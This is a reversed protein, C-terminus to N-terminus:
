AAASSAEGLGQIRPHVQAGFTEIGELAAEHSLKGIQGLMLLHGFGGVKEYFREIQNVVQNATGAFVIGKDILEDLDNSAPRPGVRGTRVAQVNAELSAYGPPNRFQIPVKNAHLYWLLEQAGARAASETKATYVMACYALRDDPTDLGERSRRARYADFVQRAAEHGVLFTAAVYGYRAIRDANPPTTTTVWVPPHPQQYPRPWVNVQRYRFHRGEWTFPEDTPEWSRMILDHAEWLRETTDAPTINAPAAEYPVGRVFGVELRGRSMNDILAMEEAVRVPERRNAIPNGLVLIRARNTTVALAAAMLPVAPVICTATQHHENVMVGLGAEDAARWEALRDAYIQAGIEPDFLRNPLTVRVSDYTEEPPLDAYSTESCYWAKM